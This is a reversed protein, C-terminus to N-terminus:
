DITMAAIDPAVSRLGTPVMNTSRNLFTYTTILSTSSLSSFVAVFVPSSLPGVFPPRRFLSSSLPAVFPPRRFPAVFLPRSFRPLLVPAIFLAHRCPICGIKDSGGVQGIPASGIRRSPYHPGIQEENRRGWQAQVADSVLATQHWACARYCSM